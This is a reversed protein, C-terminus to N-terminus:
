TFTSRKKEKKKLAKFYGTCRTNAKKLLHINHKILHDAKATLHQKTNQAQNQVISQVLTAM